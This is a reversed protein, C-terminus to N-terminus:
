NGTVRPLNGPATGNALGESGHGKWQDLDRPVSTPSRRTYAAIRKVSEGRNSLRLVQAHLRVKPKLHPDQEIQRLRADAEQTLRIFRAPPM